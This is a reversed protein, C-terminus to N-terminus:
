EYSGASAEALRGNTNRILKKGIVAWSILRCRRERWRCRAFDGLARLGQLRADGQGQGHHQDAVVPM